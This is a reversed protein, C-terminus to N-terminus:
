MKVGERVIDYPIATITEMAVNELTVAGRPEAPKRKTEVKEGKAKAAAKKADNSERRALFEERCRSPRVHEIRVHIRKRIIRGGM